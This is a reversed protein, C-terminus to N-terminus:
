RSEIHASITTLKNRIPIARDMPHPHPTSSSQYSIPLSRIMQRGSSRLFMKKRDKFLEKSTELDLVHLSGLVGAGITKKGEIYAVM